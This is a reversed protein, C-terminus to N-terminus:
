LSSFHQCFLKFLLSISVFFDLFSSFYQRFFRFPLFISVFCDQPVIIICRGMSIGWCHFFYLLQLKFPRGWWGWWGWQGSRAGPSEAWKFISRVATLFRPHQSRSGPAASFSRRRRLILPSLPFMCSTCRGAPLTHTHTLSLVTLNIQECKSSTFLLRVKTKTRGWLILCSTKFICSHSSLDHLQQNPSPPYLVRLWM